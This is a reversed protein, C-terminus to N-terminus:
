YKERYLRVARAENQTRRSKMTIATSFSVVGLAACIAAVPVGAEPEILGDAAAGAVAIGAVFCPITLFGLYQKKAQSDALQLCQTIEKDKTSYLFQKMEKYNIVENDLMYRNGFGRLEPNERVEKKVVIPAEALKYEFKETTGNSYKVMALDNKAESFLPGDPMEARKYKVLTTTIEEVKGFTEKGSRFQLTDQATASHSLLSAMAALVITYHNLTKM